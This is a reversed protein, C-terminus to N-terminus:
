QANTVFQGDPRFAKFVFSFTIDHIADVYVGAANKRQVVVNGIDRGKSINSTDLASNQGKFWSLRLPGQDIVGHKALDALPWAQDGVGVVRAMMPIPGDYDGRYLFPKQASDYGEYPNRGYNRTGPKTPVLIQGKPFAKKFRAFSEVRSPIMSLQKGVLTGVIGQGSFQQWWTETQRDYMVLDSKRLRGTTGFDLVQGDLRRDFVIAANCLPCYTVTIPRSGITDNAIEHWMLVRIPYAKAIGDVEVRILPETDPLDITDVSVFQPDDIAPIGDRPPGGSLIESFDIQSKSFDAKPFEREWSSPVDAAFAPGIFMSFTLLLAFYKFM